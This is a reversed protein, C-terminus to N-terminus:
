FERYLEGVRECFPCADLVRPGQEFRNEGIRSARRQATVAIDDGIQEAPRLQTAHDNRALRTAGLTRDPRDVEDSRCCLGLLSSGASATGGGPM